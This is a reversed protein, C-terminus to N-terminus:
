EQGARELCERLQKAAAQVHERIYTNHNGPLKHVEIGEAALNDWGRTFNGGYAEANVLLDIRGRYLRPTYRLLTQMYGEQICRSRRIAQSIPDRPQSILHIIDASNTRARILLYPVRHRWDLHRMQEWHFAARHVYYSERWWSFVRALRYRLYKIRTPRTTDMLALLAVKQGQGELQRALEYAVIGGICEGVLLYPGQPQFSRIEKLYDAAMEEVTGHARTAGESSRARLGYVPYDSGIYRVLRAYVLFEAEGGIGGPLIFVPKKGNGAQLQFLSVGPVTEGQKSSIQRSKEAEIRAALGAMTPSEFLSRVPLEIQFEERLRSLFKIALLSHGGSDFFNDHIGVKELRLVGAWIKALLAETPTRPAIFRSAAELRSPDPAPLARRDVKGSPTLPLGDLIVFASPVMYDPLKEKLFKRLELASVAPRQNPVVYAVLRKNGPADERTMVVSDRVAPHQCLVSEIEGPEIRFGRIKVQNDIRGLFEINGDPLYRVLDGTRYLRSGSKEGYPNPIFKENTLESRKLYGRALSDGGIYLEGIVGIPLPNLYPDLIYLATNAIPRGIPVTIANSAVKRVRYWSAFTTSETPGYVHLLRKPPAEASLRRVRQPDAAEGGFLLNQLKGLASAIQEVALNFLATTLFLTTVAHREIAKSMAPPSLVIDRPILVLRAGNLLAGWIEFTAADFVINSVQAVVDAPSLEVYDTNMVLRNVARHSVAVGKPKGTSGSTYMVYALSEASSQDDVKSNSQRSITPWDRDLCVMRGNQIPRLRNLLREQTILVASQTDELMFALREKPYSPDLPVYAGGAKIIGLLGVIMDISCEVCIGVLTEAGVGLKGLYHALQNARTNLERYTLQQDEFIVAVADPTREVQEEFLEHICKDKPYDRGTDNWEILLQHREAETLIPLDSLRQEPNAVLGELLVRCHGLMRTLTADDFLDTNYQLSGSLGKPTEHMSMTLDFKATEAGVRVPSVSLEEFEVGTNPVNQLVFMVQFLPSHSLSREPQLEEVLKEFPLDQHDYAELVTKRVRGLLERFSPNGSLDSRLVLTNVFFGILGEIESRNRNAIPSGVVIDEQGTYRYLLTQFAALLTMYLTVGEKRSLAKLGQTLEKSLELSQRKGRFSQVAPRPRDTPLNLVAPIGELQKKWYSLQKELVEGQLWERQWVAFDAYQIPLDPLPSPKGRSFAQYLVSLERHLVGMSWGDSVIHHMTLLLVHENEALCLLMMRVPPGQALDFPRRTEEAALHRAEDERESESLDTLYVVSLSVSLSPLIVQLPEGEVMSFKTRLAEHRRVIGDLSRKLAAVDLFGRLRLAGPVNYVPSNPEYQDLFWLRQQAFSLPASDRTTRRPIAADTFSRLRNEKLRLELLARKAPSLDALRQRFDDQDM